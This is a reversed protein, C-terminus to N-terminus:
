FTYLLEVRAGHGEEGGGFSAGFGGVTLIFHQGFAERYNGALSVVDDPLVGFGTDETFHRSALELTFQKRFSDFVWVRGLAFGFSDDARNPIPALYRGLGVSAFNIGVRGLPGGVTPDRSVSSFNDIGWFANAYINDDTYPPTWSTEAFLLYGESLADTEEDSTHSGLVRFATNLHGIRQIASIGWHIGDSDVGSTSGDDANYVLDARVTSKPFDARTFLGWFERGDAQLNNDRHIEDFAYFGTVQLNTGGKIPLSNATIGVGDVTDNILMGEQYFLPQRGVSFGIDWKAFDSAEWGRIGRFLSGFEGEFFATTIESSFADDQFGDSRGGRRPDFEPDFVYGAFNLDDRDSLPQVGVVVRETGTLQLNGFLTLVNAWENVTEFDGGPFPGRFSQLATRYTGFLYLSPQMIAGGPATFGEQLTGTGLYPDGFLLLREPREPVRSPDYGRGAGEPIRSQHHAGGAEAGHEAESDSAADAPSVGSALALLFGAVVTRTTRGACSERSKTITMIELVEGRNM